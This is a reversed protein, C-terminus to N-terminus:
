RIFKGHAISKHSQNELTWLYFGPQFQGSGPKGNIVLVSAILKGSIDYFNLIGDNEYGFLHIDGGPNQASLSIKGSIMAVEQYGSYVIEIERSTTDCRCNDCASLFVTYHGPSDYIHVPEFEESTNGDGFNWHWETSKVSQNDLFLTDASLTTSFAAVPEDNWLNWIHPNGFVTSDAILQFSYATDALGGLFSLGYSRKGFIVDYFVCAALYSGKQNPHSDDSMHLIDSPHLQLDLRWAEGVPAIWGALSYAIGMYAATVSDQMQFFDTFDISCYNTTFCQQGGFRRGWTLFFLVRTCPDASIISDQLIFSAPYMCSDRLAPIAPTQSQEQLVVFDWGGQAIKALSVLDTSHAIPNWGLTYGGLTNQDHYLSDGASQALQAVLGPLDNVYTYSNGLFLVRRATPQSMSFFADGLFILIIITRKMSADFISIKLVGRDNSGKM